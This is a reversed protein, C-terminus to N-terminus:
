PPGEGKQISQTFRGMRYIKEKEFKIAQERCDFPGFTTNDIRVNWQCSWRRTWGAIMSTDSFLRRLVTFVMQLLLARPVVHSVREKRFTDVQLGVLCVEDAFGVIVGDRIVIRRKHPLSTNM